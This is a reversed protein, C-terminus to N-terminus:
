MDTVANCLDLAESNSESLSALPTFRFRSSSLASSAPERALTSGSVGLNTVVSSAIVDLLQECRCDKSTCAEAICLSVYWSVMWCSATALDLLALLWVASTCVSWRFLLAAAFTEQQSRM